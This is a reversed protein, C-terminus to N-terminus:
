WSYSEENDSEGENDSENIEIIICDSKNLEEGENREYNYEENDNNNNDDYNIEDDGRSFDEEEIIPNTHQSTRKSTPSSMPSLLDLPEILSLGDSDCDLSNRKNRNEDDLSCSVLSKQTQFKLLDNDDDNSNRVSDIEFYKNSNLYLDNQKERYIDQYCTLHSSSSTENYESEEEFPNIFKNEDGNSRKALTELSEEELYDLYDKSSSNMQLASLRRGSVLSEKLVKSQNVESKDAHWLIRNMKSQKTSKKDRYIFKQSKQNTQVRINFVDKPIVNQSLVVTNEDNMDKSDYYDCPSNMTSNVEIDVNLGINMNMNRWMNTIMDETPQSKPSRISSSKNIDSNINTNINSHLNLKGKKFRYEALMESTLGLHSVEEEEKKKRQPLLYGYRYVLILFILLYPLVVLIPSISYLYSNAICFCCFLTPVVIELTCEQLAENGLAILLVPIMLSILALKGLKIERAHRCAAADKDDLRMLLQASPLDCLGESRAARCSGSLHQVVRVDADIIENENENENENVNVNINNQNKLKIKENMVKNLTHYIDKLQTRLSEIVLVHTILIIIVENVFIDQLIVQFIQISWAKMTIRSHIAAWQMIWYMNFLWIMGLVIWCLLWTHGNIEEPEMTDFNFFQKRLAFREFPTLQELIFYQILSTDKCMEDGDTFYKMKKMIKNCSGRARRIKYEVRNRATRFLLAQELTLPTPTGDINVKLVSMIAEINEKKVDALDSVRWPYAIDKMASNFFDEVDTLMINTEEEVTLKDYYSLLEMQRAFSDDSSKSLIKSIMSHLESLSVVPEIEIEHGEDDIHKNWVPRLCCFEEILISLFIQVPISIIIVAITVMMYFQISSPPPRLTCTDNKDNWVCKSLSSTFSSKEHECDKLSTNSLSDCIGDDPYLIGYFLSDVSLLVVINTCVLLLRHTRPFTLSPYTFIRIWDHERTVASLFRKLPDSESLLSNPPLAEEFYQGVKETLYYFVSRQFHNNPEDVRVKGRKYVQQHKTEFKENQSMEEIELEKYKDGKDENDEKEKEVENPFSYEVSVSHKLRRENYNDENEEESESDASDIHKLFYREAPIINSKSKSIKSTSFSNLSETMGVSQGDSFSMNTNITTIIIVLIVIM